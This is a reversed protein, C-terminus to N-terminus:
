DNIEWNCLGPLMLDIHKITQNRTSGEQSPSSGEWYTRRPHLCISLSLSKTQWGRRILTLIGDHLNWHWTFRILEEWNWIDDCQISSPSECMWDYCFPYEIHWLMFLPREFKWNLRKKCDFGCLSDPLFIFLLNGRGKSYINITMLYKSVLHLCTLISNHIWSHIFLYIIGNLSSTLYFNNM